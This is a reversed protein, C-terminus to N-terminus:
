TPPYTDWSDDFITEDGTILSEYLGDSTHIGLLGAGILAGRM